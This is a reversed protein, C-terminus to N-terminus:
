FTHYMGIGVLSANASVNNGGTSNAYGIPLAVSTVGGNGNASASNANQVVGYLSTRKSLSYTAGLTTQSPRANLYNDNVWVYQLGVQLKSSVKYAVGAQGIQADVFGTSLLGRGVGSSSVRMEQGEVTFDGFSYMAGLLYRNVKNNSTVTASGNNQSEAGVNVTLGNKSYTGGLYQGSASNTSGAVNGFQYGANLTVNEIVKPATYYLWNSGFVAYVTNANGYAASAAGATATPNQYNTTVGTIIGASGVHRVGMAQEGVSQIWIPDLRQGATIDGFDGQIGVNSARLFLITGATGSISSINSELNYHASMGDGMDESGKIGWISPLWLGDAMGSFTASKGDANTVNIVSADLIGYLQAGDAMASGSVIALAAAALIKKNM